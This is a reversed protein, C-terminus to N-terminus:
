RRFALYKSEMVMRLKTSGPDKPIPHDWVGSGEPTKEQGLGVDTFDHHALRHWAYSAAARPSKLM